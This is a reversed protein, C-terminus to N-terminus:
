TPLYKLLNYTLLPRKPFFVKNRPKGPPTRNNWPTRNNNRCFKGPHINIGSPVIIGYKLTHPLKEPQANKQNSLRYCRCNYCFVYKDYFNNNSNSCYWVSMIKKLFSTQNHLNLHRFLNCFLQHHWFRDNHFHWTCCRCNQM